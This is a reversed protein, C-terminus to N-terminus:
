SRRTLYKNPKNKVKFTLMKTIGSVNKLKYYFFIIKLMKCHKEDREQDSSIYKSENLNEFFLIGKLVINTTILFFLFLIQTFLALLIIFWSYGVTLITRIRILFDYFCLSFRYWKLM